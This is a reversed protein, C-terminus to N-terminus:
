VWSQKFENMLCEAGPLFPRHFTNIFVHNNRHKDALHVVVTYNASSEGKAIVGLVGHKSTTASLEGGRSAPDTRRHSHMQKRPQPFSFRETDRCSYCISVTSSSKLCAMSSLAMANRTLKVPKWLMHNIHTCGGSASFPLRVLHKRTSKPSTKWVGVNNEFLFHIIKSKSWEGRVVGDMCHSFYKGAEHNYADLFM